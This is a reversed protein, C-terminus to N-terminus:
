AGEEEAKGKFSVPKPSLTGPIKNILVNKQKTKNKTTTKNIQNQNEIQNTTTKNSTKTQLNKPKTPNKKAQKTQKEEVFLVSLMTKTLERLIGTTSDITQKHWELM